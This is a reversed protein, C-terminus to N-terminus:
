QPSLHKDIYDLNQKQMIRESIKSAIPLVSATIYNKLLSADEKKSYM